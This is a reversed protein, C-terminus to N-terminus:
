LTPRVPTQRLGLPASAQSHRQGAPIGAGNLELDALVRDVDNLAAELRDLDAMTPLSSEQM